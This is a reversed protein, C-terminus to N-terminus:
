PGRCPAIGCLVPRDGGAARRTVPKGLFLASFLVVLTPYAFLILRGAGGLHTHLGLFDLYSALYYGSFGARADAGTM